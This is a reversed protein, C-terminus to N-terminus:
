KTNTSNHPNYSSGFVQKLLDNVRAAPNIRIKEEEKAIMIFLGDLAKKTVYDNLDVNVKKGTVLAATSNYKDALPTWYKALMVKETSNKVIPVFKQYLTSYTKSKLYETAANDQGKLIAIADPITMQTIATVFIDKAGKAADEAARNLKEEFQTIQTKLAPVQECVDKVVQAEKPFPIKILQNGYYGNLVSVLNVTNGTGVTLANKLGNAIDTQTLQKVVSTGTPLKVGNFVNCSVSLSTILLLIFIKKM